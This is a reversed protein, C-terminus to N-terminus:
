GPQLVLAAAAAAAAAIPPACRHACAIGVRM